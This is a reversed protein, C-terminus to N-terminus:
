ATLTHTLRNIKGKLSADVNWDGISVTLGGLLSPDIHEELTHTGGFKKEIMASVNKREEDTLEVASTVHVNRHEAHVQASSLVLAVFEPLQDFLGKDLLLFMTNKVYPHIKPELTMRTWKSRDENVILKLDSVVRHVADGEKAAEVLASAMDNLLRSTAM